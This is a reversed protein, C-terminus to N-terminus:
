RINIASEKYDDVNPVIKRWIPDNIQTLLVQHAVREAESASFCRPQRYLRQAQEERGGTEGLSSIGLDLQRGGILELYVAALLESDLLAGHKERRELSIEFKKCLNDLKLSEGPFKSRALELTDIVREGSLTTLNCLSLEHNLFGLDFQANHIILKADGIFELFQHVVERFPPFAALFEESLGHVAFAAAAMAREPNIYTHYYNGSPIHNILEVCGIEVVRDGTTYDLGTTETDLVIERLM